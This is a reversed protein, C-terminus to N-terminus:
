AARRVRRHRIEAEIAPRLSISQEGLGTLVIWSSAVEDVEGDRPRFLVSISSTVPGRGDGLDLLSDVLQLKRGSLSEVIRRAVESLDACAIVTPHDIISYIPPSPTM